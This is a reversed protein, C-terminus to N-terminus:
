TRWAISEVLRIPLIELIFRFHSKAKGEHDTKFPEQNQEQHVLKGADIEAAKQPIDTTFIENLVHQQGNVPCDYKRFSRFRKWFEARSINTLKRAKHWTHLAIHLLTNM